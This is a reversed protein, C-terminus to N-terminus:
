RAQWFDEVIEHGDRTFLAKWTDAPLSLRVPFVSGDCLGIMTLGRPLVRLGRAPDDANPEFDGPKTWIVAAADNVEVLMITNSTGDTINRFGVGSAASFNGKGFRQPPCFIGRQHANGLYVTKGPDANSHPSEYVAPMQAILKRNHPSDWPEDLHFQEYLASQELFPLVYVRWSLLPKKSEDASYGAPLAKYVDHYNHMALALQRL